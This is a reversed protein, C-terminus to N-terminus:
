KRAYKCGLAATRASITLSTNISSGVPLCATFHRMVVKGSTATKTPFWLLLIREDPM